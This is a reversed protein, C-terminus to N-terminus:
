WLTRIPYRQMTEDATMLTVDAHKAHAILMRDVPDLHHPPLLAAISAAEAPYDIVAAHLARALVELPGVEGFRGRARLDEFEFATVSSILLEAGLNILAHRAERSLRPDDRGFWVLVHTDLLLRM